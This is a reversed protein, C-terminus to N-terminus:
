KYNTYAEELQNEIATVKRIGELRTVEKKGDLVIIAPYTNIRYHNALTDNEKQIIKVSDLKNPYKKQLTLLAEYYFREVHQNTESSFILTHIQNTNLNVPLREDVPTFQCSSLLSLIAFLSISLIGISKLKMSNVEKM